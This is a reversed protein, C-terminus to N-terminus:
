VRALQDHSIATADTQADLSDIVVSEGHSDLV